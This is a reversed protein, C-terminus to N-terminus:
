FDEIFSHIIDKIVINGFFDLNCIIIGKCFNISSNVLDIILQFVSQTFTQIKLSKEGM